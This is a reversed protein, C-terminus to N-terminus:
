REAAMQRSLEAISDDAVVSARFVIETDNHISGIESTVDSVLAPMVSTSVFEVGEGKAAHYQGINVLATQGPGLEFRAEGISAQFRGQLITAIGYSPHAHPEFECSETVTHRVSFQPRSVIIHSELM